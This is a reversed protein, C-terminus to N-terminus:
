NKKLVLDVFPSSHYVTEVENSLLSFNLDTLVSLLTSYQDTSVFPVVDMDIDNTVM